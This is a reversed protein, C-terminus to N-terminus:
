QGLVPRFTWADCSGWEMTESAIVGPGDDFPHVLQHLAFGGGSKPVIDSVAWVEGPVLPRSWTGVRAGGDYVRVEPVIAPVSEGAAGFHVYLRMTYDGPTIDTVSRVAPSLLAGTDARPNPGVGSPASFWRPTPDWPGCDLGETCLTGVAEGATFHLDMLSHVDHDWVLEVYLESHAVAEIAIQYPSSEEGTDSMVTLEFVYHGVLPLFFYPAVETSSVRAPLDQLFEYYLLGDSERENLVMLHEEQWLIQELRSGEPMEVVRWVYSLAGSEDQLEGVTSAAADLRVASLAPCIGGPYSLQPQSDPVECGGFAASAVPPKAARGVGEVVVSYVPYHTATTVIRLVERHLGFTRPQFVVRMTLGDGSELGERVVDDVVYMSASENEWSVSTVELPIGSQNRIEIEFQAKRHIAVEGLAVAFSAGM